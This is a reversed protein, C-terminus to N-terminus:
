PLNENLTRGFLKPIFRGARRAYEDYAQGHAQRMFREENVAKLLLLTVHIVAVIILARSPAAIVTSIMLLISLAYIPHRVRSFPGTTLLTTMEEDVAMRWHRGMFRWCALSAAFAGAATAAAIWRLVLASTTTMAEPIALWPHRQPVQNPAVFPLAIWLLILPVWVIWMARELHQKPIAANKWRARRRVRILKAVVYAWYLFVVVGAAYAPM